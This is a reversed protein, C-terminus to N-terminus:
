QKGTEGFCGPYGVRLPQALMDHRTKLCALPEIGARRTAHAWQAVKLGAAHLDIIPRPGLHALTAAMRHPGLEAFPYVALGAAVLGDVDLRGAFRVVTIHPALHALDAASVDGNPGIIIDDRTYDAVLLADAKALEHDCVECLNAVCKVRAGSRALQQEMVRGFKDGSVIIIQNKHIEIQAEFLMQMALLASYDFVELGPFDENTALVLIGKAWCAELDVDGPRFEWAECMLSIIATSPMAAVAKADIPRVFGLNTVIDAQAFIELSRETYIEVHDALGCLRELARTQAIVSQTSAYRSNRTCALVREAGARAAIVPTVVYPGSAAETVVSLGSLDLELVDIAQEILSIVRRPNLMGAAHLCKLDEARPDRPQTKPHNRHVM